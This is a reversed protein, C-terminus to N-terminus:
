FIVILNYFAGLSAKLKNLFIDNVFFFKMELLFDPALVFIFNTVFIQSACDTKNLFKTILMMNNRHFCRM